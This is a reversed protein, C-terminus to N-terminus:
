AEPTETEHHGGKPCDRKATIAEAYADVKAEYQLAQGCKRCPQQGYGGSADAILDLRPEAEPFYSKVLLYAAHHEPTVRPDAATLKEDSRNLSDYRSGKDVHWPQGIILLKGADREIGDPSYCNRFYSYAM